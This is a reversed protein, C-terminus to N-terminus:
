GNNLQQVLISVLEDSPVYLLYKCHNLPWIIRHIFYFRCVSRNQVPAAHVFLRTKHPQGTKFNYWAYKLLATSTLFHSESLSLWPTSILLLDLSGQSCSGTLFSDENYFYLRLLSLYVSVAPFWWSSSCSSSSSRQSSLVCVPLHLWVTPAFEPFNQLITRWNYFM